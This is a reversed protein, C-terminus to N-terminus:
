LTMHFTFILANTQLVAVLAFMAMWFLGPTTARDFKYAGYDASGTRLGDCLFYGPLGFGLLGWAIPELM